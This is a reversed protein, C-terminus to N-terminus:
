GRRARNVRVHREVDLADDAGNLLLGFAACKDSNAEDPCRIASGCFARPETTSRAHPRDFANSPLGALSSTSKSTRLPSTWARSPSFPAPFVVSIEIS